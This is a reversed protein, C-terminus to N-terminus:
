TETATAAAPGLTSLATGLMVAVVLRQRTTYPLTATSQNMFGPDGWFLTSSGKNYPCPLAVIEGPFLNKIRNTKGQWISLRRVEFHLFTCKGNRLPHFRLRMGQVSGPGAGSASHAAPELHLHCSVAWG